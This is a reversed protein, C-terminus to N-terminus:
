VIAATSRALRGQGLLRRCLTPPPLNSLKNLTVGDDGVDGKRMNSGGRVVGPHYESSNRRDLAADVRTCYGFLAGGQLDADM